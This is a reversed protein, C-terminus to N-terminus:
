TDAFDRICGCLPTRVPKFVKAFFSLRFAYQLLSHVLLEPLKDVAAFLFVGVAYLQLCKKCMYVSFNTYYLLLEFLLVLISTIIYLFCYLQQIM